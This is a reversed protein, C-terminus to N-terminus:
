HTMVQVFYIFAVGALATAPVWPSDSMEEAEPLLHTAGLYLFVGAFLGLLLPLVPTALTVYSQALVGGVPAIATVGLMAAAARSSQKTGLMVGVASVGETLKHLLVALAITWGIQEGARFGQGILFGDFFSHVSIGVAGWLGARTAHEGHGPNNRRQLLYSLFFGAVCAFFLHHLELTGPASLLLRLAGPIVDILAGAVLAGACFAFVFAQKSRLWLAVLGGGLTAVCAAGCIYLPQM